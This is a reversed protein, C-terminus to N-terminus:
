YQLYLIKWHTLKSLASLLLSFLVFFHLLPSEDRLRVARHCRYGCGHATRVEHADGFYLIQVAQRQCPGRIPIYPEGYLALEPAGSNCDPFNARDSVLNVTAPVSFGIIREVDAQTMTSYWGADSLYRPILPQIPERPIQSPGFVAEVSIEFGVPSSGAQAQPPALEEPPDMAKQILSDYAAPKLLAEPSLLRVVRVAYSKFAAHRRLRCLGAPAITSPTM